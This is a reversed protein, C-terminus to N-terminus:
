ESNRRYFRFECRRNISHYRKLEPKPSLAKGRGEDLIREPSVQWVKVLENRAADARFQSLKANYPDTGKIDTYGIIEVDLDEHEYLITAVKLIEALAEHKLDYKDFDFYIFIPEIIGPSSSEQVIIVPAVNGLNDVKNELSDLRALIDNYNPDKPIYDRWTLKRMHTQDKGAINWRLTLDFSAIYDNTVGSYTYNKRGYTDDGMEKLKTAAGELNDDTYMFYQLKLALALQRTIDYSFEAGLPLVGAGRKESNFGEKDWIEKTVALGPRRVYTLEPKYWAYGYGITVWIDWKNNRNLMPFNLPNIGLFPYANHIRSEFSGGVDSAGTRIYTYGGGLSLMPNITYELGGGVNWHELPKKFTPAIDIAMDGIFNNLGLDLYLSWHTYDKKTFTKTTLQGKQNENKKASDGQNQSEQQSYTFPLAIFILGLLLVYNKKM